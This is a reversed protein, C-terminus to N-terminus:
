RRRRAIGLSALGLGLMLVAIGRETGLRGISCGSDDIPAAMTAATSSAGANGVTPANPDCFLCATQGADAEGAECSPRGFTTTPIGTSCVGTGVGNPAANTCVAGKTSCTVDPPAVDARAAPTTLTGAACLLAFVSKKFGNM